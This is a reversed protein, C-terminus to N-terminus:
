CDLCAFQRIPGGTGMGNKMNKEMQSEMIGMYGWYLGLIVKEERMFLAPKGKECHM